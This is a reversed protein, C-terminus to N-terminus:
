ETRACKKDGKDPLEKSIASLVKCLRCMEESVVDVGEKTVKCVLAVHGNRNEYETTIYKAGRLQEIHYVIGQKAAAFSTKRSKEDIFTNTVDTITMGKPHRAIEIFIRFKKGIGAKDLNPLKMTNKM